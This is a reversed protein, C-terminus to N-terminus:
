KFIEPNIIVKRGNEDKSYVKIVEFGTNPLIFNIYEIGVVCLDEQMDTDCSLEKIETVNELDKRTIHLLDEFTCWDPNRTDFDIVAKDEENVYGYYEEFDFQISKGNMVMEYGGLCVTDTDTIERNFRIGIQM